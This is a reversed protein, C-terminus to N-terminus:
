DDEEDLISTEEISSSREQEILRRLEDEVRSKTEEEVKLASEEVLRTKRAEVAKRKQMLEKQATREKKTYQLYLAIVIVVIVGVGIILNRLKVWEQHLYEESEAIITQSEQAGLSYNIEVYITNSKQAWELAKEYDLIDYYNEAKSYYEEAIVKQDRGSKIDEILSNCETTKNFDMMDTYIEKAKSVETYARNYEAINYNGKANKYFIHAQTRLQMRTKIQEILTDTKSICVYEKLDICLTRANNAYALAENLRNILYKEQAKKYYINATESIRVTGWAEQIEKILRNVENVYNSYLRSRVKARDPLGKEEEGALKYLDTYIKKGKKASATANFYDRITYFTEAEQILKKADSVAKDTEQGRETNIRSILNTAQTYGDEFEILNYLRQASAAYELADDLDKVAFLQLAKDYSAAANIKIKTLEKDIESLLTASKSMGSPDPIRSYLDSANLALSRANLYEEMFYHSKALNFFNEAEMYKDQECKIKKSAASKVIDDSKLLGQSGASGGISRFIDKANEAMLITRELHIMDCKSADTVIYYDGAIDYYFEAMQIQQVTNNIENIINDCKKVGSRSGTRGYLDRAIHASKLANKLDQSKMYTLAAKYLADAEYVFAANALGVLVIILCAALALRIRGEKM